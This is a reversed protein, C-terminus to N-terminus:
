KKQRTERYLMFEYLYVIGLVVFIVLLYLELLGALLSSFTFVLGLALFLFFSVIHTERHFVFVSDLLILAAIIFFVIQVLLGYPATFSGALLSGCLIGKIVPFGEVLPGHEM